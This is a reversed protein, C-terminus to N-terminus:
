VTAMVFADPQTAEAEVVTVTLVDGVAVAELLLGTTPPFVVDRVDAPPLEYEHTPGFSKVEDNCFGLM